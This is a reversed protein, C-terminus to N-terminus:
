RVIVEHWPPRVGAIAYIADAEDRLRTLTSLNYDGSALGGAAIAHREDAMALAQAVPVRGLGECRPCRGKIWGLQGSGRCGLCIIKIVRAKSM